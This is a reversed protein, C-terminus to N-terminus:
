PVRLELGVTARVGIRGPQHLLMGAVDFRPRSLAVIGDVGALLAIFPRPSIGFGGGFSFLGFGRRDDRNDTVNGLPRATMQGGEFGACVPFEVISVVPVGCGRARLSWAGIAAGATNTDDTFVPRPVLVIAGLEVRWQPGILGATIVPGLGLKPLMGYELLGDARLAFRALRLRGRPRGDADDDPPTRTVTVEDPPLEPEESQSAELSRDVALPDAAVAAVLAAGDALAQCDPSSLAHTNTGSATETRMQLAFTGDKRSVTAELRVFPAGAERDGLLADLRARVDEVPPCGEPASWTLEVGAAPTPEASPGQGPGEIPVPASAALWAAFLV